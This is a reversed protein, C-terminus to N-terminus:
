GAATMKLDFLLVEAATEAVLELVKEDSLAAGDGAALTEGNLRVGGKVVQVWAGRGPRLDFHLSAREKLRSVYLDADQHIPISGDRGDQSAALVLPEAALQASFDKQGYGPKIGRTAPVIWIQFFHTTQDARENMEAHTVGSGASMRQVEGPRITTANGMSDKHTLAGDVVYSIIEMDRHPHAGFGTGGAIRDENIVRLPGFGMHKPDYYDAFSFSHHSDLWGHQAHGRDQSRRVTLM